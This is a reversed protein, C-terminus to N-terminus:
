LGHLCRAAKQGHAVGSRRRRQGRAIHLRNRPTSVNRRQNRPAARAQSTRMAPVVVVDLPSSIFTLLVSSRLVVVRRRHRLAERPRTAAITTPTMSTPKTGAPVAAASVFDRATSMM